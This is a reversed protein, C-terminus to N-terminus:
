PLSLFMGNMQRIGDMGYNRRGRRKGREWVENAAMGHPGHVERPIASPRSPQVPALAQRSGSVALM